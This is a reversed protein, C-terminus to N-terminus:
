EAAPQPSRSNQSPPRTGAPRAAGGTGGGRLVGPDPEPAEIARMARVWRDFARRAEGHRGARVLVTVLSRHASEDFPDAGVLRVLSAVARDRDGAEASLAALRRLGRLWAARVEERLAQAWDQYPEDDFADGLYGADVGALVERAQDREGSRDLRAALDVGRLLEEADVAVHGPDLAIGAGDATVHHDAPWQRSPDLVTRIVSLLVSLRHATRRQDDEPWLLECAEPRPVPRGRRAVLIKLLSRAQRSRWATLPVPQGAVTVEFRGLVRIRVPSAAVDAPDLPVGGVAHIGLGRLRDAAARAAWHAAADAEPLRGLLVLMRDAAPVAEGRRWIAEAERLAAAADAPEASVLAVLELAEALADLRRSDRAARAAGAAHRAAAAPDGEGRAVWGLAATALPALLAPALRAAEEAASRAAALDADPPEALVRALQALAPVLVQRDGAARALDVAEELAARSQQHHGRHLHVEGLGALAMAVRNLGVRRSIQAARDFHRAAEDYRGLMTLAAGANCLAVTRMGPPGGAEASRVAQAAAELARGFQAQRVLGEAQNLLVRTLLAADGARAAAARAEALHRDRRGGVESLALALHAAALARDGGARQAAALAEAAVQGAAPDGLMTLVTARCALVLAGDTDGPGGAPPSWRQCLRLAARYDSRMYHTMAARWVLGPAWSGTQEAEDLLPQFAALAGSVDGGIRRADGLLLRLRPTRAAGPLEEILAAVRAGGAAVMEDGAAEILAACGEVEGARGLAYAAALPQGHGRYWAAAARDRRAAATDARGPAGTGLEGAPDRRRTLVAALVPVVRYAPRPAQRTPRQDAVVLGTEVLWRLAERVQEPPGLVGATALHGCLGATIPRLEAVAELLERAGGPLPALVEERLWAAAPAGPGALAALVDEEDHLRRALAEGAYTVLAPWGATLEAVRYALDTDGVGYEDALTAVVADAPLGLDAATRETVPGPLASMTAAALPHRSALSLRVEDPLGRLAGALRHQAPGDLRGLDDVVVHAAPGGAREAALRVPDAPAGPGVLDAATLFATPAQAGAALATTKGYGAAAVLLRCGRTRTAPAMGVEGCHAPADRRYPGNQIVPALDDIPWGLALVGVPSAQGAPGTLGAAV